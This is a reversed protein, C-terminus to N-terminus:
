FCKLLNFINEPKLFYYRAFPGISIVTSSNGLNNSGYTLSPRVGIGFKDKLFYGVTPSIQFNTQKYQISAASSSQLRLFSASGSMLWNGKSIQSNAANSCIIIILIFLITKRMNKTQTPKFFLSVFPPSTDSAIQCNKTKM